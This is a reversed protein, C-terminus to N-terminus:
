APAATPLVLVREAESRRLALRYGHVRFLLPDGFPARAILEIRAGAWVGASALRRSLADDGVLSSVEFVSGAGVDSLRCTPEAAHSDDRPLSLPNLLM